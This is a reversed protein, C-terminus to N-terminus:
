PCSGPVLRLRRVLPGSVAFDMDVLSAFRLGPSQARFAVSSVVPSRGQTAVLPPRVAPCFDAARAMNWEPGTSWRAQSSDCKLRLVSRLPQLRM